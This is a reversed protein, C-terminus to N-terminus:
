EDGGRSWGVGLYRIGMDILNCALIRASFYFEKLSNKAIKKLVGKNVALLKLV